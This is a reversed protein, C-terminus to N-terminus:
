KEFKEIVCAFFFILLYPKTNAALTLGAQARLIRHCEWCHSSFSLVSFILCRSVVTLQLISSLTFSNSIKKKEEVHATVLSILVEIRFFQSRKRYVLM